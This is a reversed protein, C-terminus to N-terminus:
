TAKRQSVSDIDYSSGITVLEKDSLLHQYYDIRDSKYFSKHHMIAKTYGKGPSFSGSTIQRNMEKETLDYLISLDPRSFHKRLVEAPLTSGHSFMSFGSKGTVATEAKTYDKLPPDEPLPLFARYYSKM